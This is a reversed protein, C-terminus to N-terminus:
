VRWDHAGDAPLEAREAARLVGIREIWSMGESWAARLSLHGDPEEVTLLVVAGRVNEDPDIHQRVGLRDILEGLEGRQSM